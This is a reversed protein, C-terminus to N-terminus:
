FFFFFFSNSQFLRLVPSSSIPFPWLRFRILLLIIDFFSFLFDCLCLFYSNFHFSTAALSFRYWLFHCGIVKKYNVCRAVRQSKIESCLWEIAPFHSALWKWQLSTEMRAPPKDITKSRRESKAEGTKKKKKFIPFTFEAYIAWM